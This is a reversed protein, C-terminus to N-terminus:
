KRLKNLKQVLYATSWGILLFGALAEAGGFLRWAEGIREIGNGATTYTSISVYLANEIRDAAGLVLYLAAFLAIEVLHILFLSLAIVPVLWATRFGFTKRELEADELNFLRSIGTLGGAHVLSCAAAM